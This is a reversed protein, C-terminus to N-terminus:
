SFKGEEIKINPIDVLGLCIGCININDPQILNQCTSVINQVVKAPGQDNKNIFEILNFDYNLPKLNKTFNHFNIKNFINFCALEKNSFDTLPRMIIENGHRDDILQCEFPM